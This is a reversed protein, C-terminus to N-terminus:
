QITLMPSHEDPADITEISMAMSKVLSDVTSLDVEGDAGTRVANLSEFTEQGQNYNINGAKIQRSLAKLQSRLHEEYEIQEKTLNM